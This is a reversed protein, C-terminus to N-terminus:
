FFEKQNFKKKLDTSLSNLGFQPGEDEEYIHAFILLSFLVEM